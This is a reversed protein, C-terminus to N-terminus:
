IQMTGIEVHSRTGEVVVIGTETVHHDISDKELDYGIRANPPIQVNKELIARRV